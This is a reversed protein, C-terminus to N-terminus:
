EQRWSRATSRMPEGPDQFSLALVFDRALDFDGRCEPHSELWNKWYTDGNTNPNLVWQIFQPDDL